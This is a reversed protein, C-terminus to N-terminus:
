LFRDFVSGGPGPQCSPAYGVLRERLDALPMARGFLYGQGYPCANNLLFDRQEETEIGEAIVEIGLKRSMAIIAAVIGKDSPDRAIDRVFSRDIKLTDVPFRKLYGLSSYGTGFDDISLRLGLERLRRLMLITQESQEMLASETLELKLSGESMRETRLASAILDTFGPRMFQRASINIAVWFGDGRAALSCVERCATHLVWEGIPQILDTEEAVPIFRDPPILGHDPHRWRLLAETGVIRRTALEVVPQYHLTLQDSGIAARLDREVSLRRSVERNMAETFFQYTNRGRAKAGYMAMDANRMLADPDLSDMPALTIGISATVPAHLGPLDMPQALTELVNLAARRAGQTTGV